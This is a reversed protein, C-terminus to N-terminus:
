LLDMKTSDSKAHLGGAASALSLAGLGQLLARRDMKSNM